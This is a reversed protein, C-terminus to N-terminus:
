NICLSLMRFKRTNRWSKNRFNNGKETGFEKNM